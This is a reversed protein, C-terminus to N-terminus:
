KDKIKEYQFQKEAISDLDSDKKNIYQRLIENGINGLAIRYDMEDKFEKKCLEDYKKITPNAINGFKENEQDNFRSILIGFTEEINQSEKIKKSSIFYDLDDVKGKQINILDKLASLNNHLLGIGAISGLLFMGSEFGFSKYFKEAKVKDIKGKEFLDKVTNYIKNLEEQSGPTRLNRLEDIKSKFNGEILKGIERPDKKILTQLVYRDQQTLRNSQIVRLIDEETKCNKLASTLRRAQSTSVKGIKIAEGIFPLFACVVGIIIGVEDGQVASNVILGADFGLAVWIAVSEPFVFYTIVQAAILVANGWEVWFGTKKILSKPIDKTSLYMEQKYPLKNEDFYGIFKWSVPKDSIRKINPFYWVNNVNFKSITGSPLLEDFDRVNPIVWDYSTNYYKKFFDALKKNPDNGFLIYKTRYDGVQRPLAITKAENYGPPTNFIVYKKLFEQEEKDRDIKMQDAMNSLVPEEQEKLQNGKSRTLKAGVVDAWKTVGVQNAPGRTIGSEWKGVAPYGQGGAQKDSTGKEPEAAPPEAQEELEIESMVTLLNNYQKESLALKM